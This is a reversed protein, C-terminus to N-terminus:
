VGRFGGYFGLLGGGRVFRLRRVDWGEQVTQGCGASGCLGECEGDGQRYGGLSGSLGSFESEEGGSGSPDSLVLEAGITALYLELRLNSPPTIVELVGM